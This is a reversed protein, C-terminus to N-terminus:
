FGTKRSFYKKENEKGKLIVQVGVNIMRYLDSIKCYERRNDAYKLQKQDFSKSHVQGTNANQIYSAYGCNKTMVVPLSRRKFPPCLIM